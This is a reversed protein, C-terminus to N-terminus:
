CVASDVAILNMTCNLALDKDGGAFTVNLSEIHVGFKYGNITLAKPCKASFSNAMYNLKEYNTGNGDHRLIGCGDTLTFRVSYRNTVFGLNISKINWGVTTGSVADTIPTPIYIIPNSYLHSVSVGLNSLDVICTPTTFPFGIQVSDTM